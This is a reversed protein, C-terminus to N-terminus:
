LPCVHQTRRIHRVHPRGGPQSADVSVSSRGEILRLGSLAYGSEYRSAGYGHVQFMIAKCIEKVAEQGAVALM